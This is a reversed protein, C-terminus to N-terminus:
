SEVWNKADLIVARKSGGSSHTDLEFSTSSFLIFTLGVGKQGIQNTLGSKDTAFPRLLGQLKDPEIGCGNDSFEITRTSADVLLRIHGRTPPKRRLADVSNQALEALIDWDHSYSDLIGRMQHRIQDIDPQLFEVKTGM